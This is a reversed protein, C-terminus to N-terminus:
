LGYNFEGKKFQIFKKIDEDTVFLKSNNIVFNVDDLTIPEIKMNKVAREYARQKIKGCISVIDACGYGCLKDALYAIDFGETQIKNLEKNIIFIRAEKDPLGVYIHKDFRGGRLIAQDLAWPRNTAAILLLMECEGSKTIGDVETLLTSVFRSIEGDISSGNERKSAISDFEDFFIIARKNKKASEFLSVINKSSDGMYKSILDQCNVSYFKANIEGSIAKAIYTKGTGPPGYLLIKAGPKINYANALSPNKLPEIVSYLIEKKVDDLGAVDNFTIKYKGEFIDPKLGNNMEIRIEKLSKVKNLIQRAKLYYENKVSNSKTERAIQNAIEAAQLFMKKAEIIRNNNSLVLGQNYCENFSLLLDNM